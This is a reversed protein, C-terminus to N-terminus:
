RQTFAEQAQEIQEPTPNGTPIHMVFAATTWAIGALLAIVFRKWATV